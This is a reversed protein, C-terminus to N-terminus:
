RYKFSFLSDTGEYLENTKTNVICAIANDSNDPFRWLMLWNDYRYASSQINHQIQPVERGFDNVDFTIAYLGGVHGCLVCLINDNCKILKNWLEEPTNYTTNKLRAKCKLSSVRRGGGMELYEHNILIFQIDPHTSVWNNAWEVVEKRPGFELLLFDYRKGQITNKVVINERRGEEFSAVINSNVLPYNVYDNFRTSYRDKISGNSDWTYDHDGIIPIFPIEQSIGRMARYFYPWEDKTNNTESLDGTQLICKINLSEKNYRIWDLSHKFLGIFSSSTYFQIDGFIAICESPQNFSFHEEEEFVDSNKTCYISLGLGVALFAVLRLQKIFFNM